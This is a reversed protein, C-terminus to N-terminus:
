RPLVRWASGLTELRRKAQNCIAEVTPAVNQEDLRHGILTASPFSELAVQLLTDLGEAAATPDIFIVDPMLGSEAILRLGIEPTLRVPTIRERYDWCESLFCDFFQPRLAAISPEDNEQKDPSWADIALVHSHPALDALYRTIRGVGGGTEVLLKFDTKVTDALAQRAAAPMWERDPVVTESTPPSGPWPFQNALNELQHSLDENSQTTASRIDRFNMTFTAFRPREMGADEWGYRYNGVHWLRISSDAVVQYGSRRARECFAYDEALYWHGDEIERIMPFFFPIM